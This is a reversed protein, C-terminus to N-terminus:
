TVEADQTHNETHTPGFESVTIIGSVELMFMIDQLSVDWCNGVKDTERAARDCRMSLNPIDLCVTINLTKSIECDSNRACKKPKNCSWNLLM